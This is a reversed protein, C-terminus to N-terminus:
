INLLYSTRRWFITLLQQIKITSAWQFLLGRASMDNWMSVNNQNWDLWDKSRSKWAASVLKITRATSRNRGGHLQFITKKVESVATEEVSTVSINNVGPVGTKAVSIVSINNKKWKRYSPKKWRHLQFISKNVEPVIPPPFRLVPLLAGIQRLDSIINIVNLNYRICMAMFLSTGQQSAHPISKWAKLFYNFCLSM